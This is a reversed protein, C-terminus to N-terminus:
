TNLRKGRRTRSMAPLIPLSRVASRRGRWRVPCSGSRPADDIRQRVQHAVAQVVADLRGLLAHRGASGPGVPAKRGACRHCCRSRPLRRRRRGSGRSSGSSAMDCPRGTLSSARRRFRAVSRRARSRRGLLDRVDGTTAHAHVHHAPVDLVHTAVHLQRALRAFFWWACRAAASAPSGPRCTPAPPRLGEDQRQVMHGFRELRGVVLDIRDGAVLAHHLHAALVAAPLHM